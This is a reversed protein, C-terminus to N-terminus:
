LQQGFVWLGVYVSCLGEWYKILSDILSWVELARDTVVRDEVRRTQYFRCFLLWMKEVPFDFVKSFNWFSSCLKDLAQFLEDIRFSLKLLKICNLWGLRSLVKSYNFETPFCPLYTYTVFWNTWNVVSLM